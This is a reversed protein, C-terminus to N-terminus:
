ENQLSFRFLLSFRALKESTRVYHLPPLTQRENWLDHTRIGDRDSQVHAIIILGLRVGRINTAVVTPVIIRITDRLM